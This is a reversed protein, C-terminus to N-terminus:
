TCLYSKKRFFKCKKSLIRVKAFSKIIKKDLFAELFSLFLKVIM